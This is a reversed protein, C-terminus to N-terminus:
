GNCIQMIKVNQQQLMIITYDITYSAKPLNNKRQKKDKLEHKIQVRHEAKETM